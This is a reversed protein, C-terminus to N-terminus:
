KKGGIRKDYDILGPFQKRLGDQVRIFRKSGNRFVNMMGKQPIKIIRIDPISSMEQIRKRKKRIRWRFWEIMETM